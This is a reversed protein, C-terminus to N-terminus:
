GAKRYRSLSGTALMLEAAEGVGANSRVTVVDPTMVDAARM